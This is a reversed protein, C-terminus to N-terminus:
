DSFGSEHRVAELVSKVRAGVGSWQFDNLVRRRGQEGLRMALDRDTLLREIAEAIETPNLPDVLLGTIGDALADPVGGSRGGVVPKGCANAELLVMGFGEVDNAELRARSVMVFVDCLAYLDPLDEDPVRGAFVLRDLVGLETALKELEGRYSGGGAILYVLDPVSKLLQPLARIVMDQGKRSVLNGVTLIVRVNERQGLFKRRLEENAAKPHFFNTDCGPSLIEIRRPDAGAKEVIGATYRSTALVRRAKGLALQQREYGESLTELIENGYAFVIFPIKFWRYLSLGFYSDDVSGLIVIQPRERIMIALAATLWGAAKLIRSRGILSPFRYVRPAREGANQNGAVGTLCCAGDRGLAAAVEEMFRSIGGVQPPYYVGSILLAKVREAAPESPIRDQKKAQSM